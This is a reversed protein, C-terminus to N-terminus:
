QCWRLMEVFQFDFDLSYFCISSINFQRSLNVEAMLDTVDHYIERGNNTM